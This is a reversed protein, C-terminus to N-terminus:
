MKVRLSLYYQRGNSYFARPQEKTDAYYKLTPNNLNLGDLSVSLNDNIKYNISAALTGVEDGHLQSSRDLGALFSSRYTYALRASWTDNEFYGEINYTDRSNGAMEGGDDTKGDAYTYNANLGFPGFPQQYGLEVGKNKAGINLPNVIVYQEYQKHLDSFYTGTSRGYTVFSSYKQYFLGASLISRPAFYWEGMVDLNNSRVPNLDPNGSSGSNLQDNLVTASSLATYDPRAMTRSLSTRLVINKSVTLKFNASPLIDTYSRDVWNSVFPGFLSTNDVNTDNSTANRLILSSQQTRVVRVGANGSWQSGSLNVMGYAAATKEKVNFDNTWQHRQAPDYNFVANPNPNAQTSVTAWKAIDEYSLRWLSPLPAGFSSGFGDPYTGGSWTPVSNGVNPNAWNPGSAIFQGNDRQHDSFRAGFKVSELVGKDLSWDGDAQAYHERDVSKVLAGYNWNWTANSYKTYDNGTLAVNAASGMGNFSYSMGFPTAGAGGVNGVESAFEQSQGIGRTTGVQGTILLRDSARWKGDLNLYSSESKAGPRIGSDNIFSNAASNVPFNAAVLTKGDASLQYSTPVVGGEILWKPSAMFNTNMNKANMRSYLGNIGFTLDRTPKFQIDIAAGERVREQEFLSNGILSPAMVNALKPDAVAAASTPSIQFYGLVEQGDRRLHRTESFVQFLAGATSDENKFSWLASFQPDGKKALDSYAGGLSVEGTFTKQFDLPHRTEINVAGVAGGETLDAMASKHVTVKGVLEAPLLSYSASRGVTTGFLNLVFWDGTSVSHGNILTQTLSPSTGRISVRDNEDFGGEGGGSSATNVGPIRQIADAVNKDPMKGVDEATVVDVISDANRKQNLSQQRSGRIGTITVTELNADPKKAAAAPAPASAADAPAAPAQQAQATTLSNMLVLAVASAIPTLQLNM